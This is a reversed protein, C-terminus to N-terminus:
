RVSNAVGFVGTPDPADLAVPQEEAALNTLALQKTVRQGVPVDGFAAAHYARGEVRPFISEDISLTATVACTHVELAIM